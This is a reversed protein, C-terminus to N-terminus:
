GGPATTAPVAGSGATRATDTPHVVFWDGGVGEGRAESVSTDGAYRYLPMGRFTVQWSGDTRVVTGLPGGPVGAGPQLGRTGPPATLPPWARACAGTCTPTGTGDPTYRYLTAGDQGDALVLGLGGRRVAVVARTNGGTPAATTSTTSSPSPLTAVSGGCGGASLGAVTAAVGAVVLRATCYRDRRAVRHRLDPAPGDSSRTPAARTPDPM